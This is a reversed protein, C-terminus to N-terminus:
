IEVVLQPNFHPNEWELEELSGAQRLNLAYGRPNTVVRCGAVEYDFSDHVHGHIWLDAQALLPTLDSIFGPNLPSGAFRAHISQPHVGHHTVVVTPGDFDQALQRELWHRSQRHLQLAHQPLFIGDPMTIVRHDYLIKGAEEMAAELTLPEVGDQQLAYDTWLCCGLFRVGGIVRANNELHIVNGGHADAHRRIDDVVVPYQADYAEHNGHVYIAPVPWDAFADIASTGNHIDGAIVLVDADTPEVARYGPFDRMRELHLDSAIQIKM